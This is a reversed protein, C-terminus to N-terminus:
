AVIVDDHCGGAGPRVASRIHLPRAPRTTADAGEHGRRRRLLHHQDRPVADPFFHHGDAALEELRQPLHAAQGELEDLEIEAGIPEEAIARREGLGILRHNAVGGRGHEQARETIRADGIEAVRAVDEEAEAEAEVEERVDPGDGAEGVAQQRELVLPRDVVVHDHEALVGLADVHAHAAVELLARGVLDGDVLVHVAALADLADDPGGEGVGDGLSALAHVHAVLGVRHRLRPSQCRVNLSTAASNGAMSALCM